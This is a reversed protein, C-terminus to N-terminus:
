KGHAFDLLIKYRNLLPDLFTQLLQSTNLSADLIIDLLVTEPFTSTRISTIASLAQIITLALLGSGACLVLLIFYGVIPTFELVCESIFYREVHVLM